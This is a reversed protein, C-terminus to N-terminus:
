GGEGGGMRLYVGVGKAGVGGEDWRVMKEGQTDYRMQFIVLYLQPKNVYKNMMFGDKIRLHSLDGYGVEEREGVDQVGVFM